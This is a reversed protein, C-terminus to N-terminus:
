RHGEIAAASPARDPDLARQVYGDVMPAWLRWVRELDEIPTESCDVRLDIPAFPLGPRAVELAASRLPYPEGGADLGQRLASMLRDALPHEPQRQFGALMADIVADNALGNGVVVVGRDIRAGKAPVCKEGTYEEARGALDLVALQRWAAHPTSELMQTLTESATRGAALCRGGLLGLRPDSRAQSLVVGFGPVVFPARGGAAMSSTALACGFEGSRPCLGAISFTM